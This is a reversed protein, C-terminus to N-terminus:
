QGRKRGARPRTRVRARARERAKAPKRSRTKAKPRRAMQKRVMEMRLLKELNARAPDFDLLVASFVDDVTEVPIYTMEKAIRRPVDQLDKVNQKPVIIKHIGVRHAASVKEKIGGVPLVKGRLSVEGTMAFDNRVPRESMVSAIVVSVTIGASPGDKPIAGSPFHVHIDYNTFDAYPIGLWDARSRVYSHAAQISERMVEGLSGTSIVNGSGRMKLAEILMIDGGTQTWAVGMAVGIEPKTEAMEPIYVPTGLLREVQQVGIHVLGRQGAARQASL